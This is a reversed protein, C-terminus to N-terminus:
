MVEQCMSMLNGLSSGRNQEFVDEKVKRYEWPLECLESANNCWARAAKDKREVNPLQDWVNGEGMSILRPFITTKVCRM